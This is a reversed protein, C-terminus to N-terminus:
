PAILHTISLDLVRRAVLPLLHVCKVFIEIFWISRRPHRTLWVRSTRWSQWEFLLPFYNVLELNGINSNWWYIFFREKNLQRIFFFLFNDLFFFTNSKYFLLLFTDALFFLLLFANELSFLLLFANLLLLKFNFHSRFLYFFHCTTLWM